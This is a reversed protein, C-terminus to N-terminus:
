VSRRPPPLEIGPPHARTAPPPAPDVVLALREGMGRLAVAPLTVATCASCYDAAIAVAFGGSGDESPSAADSPLAAAAAPATIDAGFAYHDPMLHHLVGVLVLILVCAVAISRRVVPRRVIRHSIISRSIISRSIISRSVVFGGASSLRLISHGVVSRCVTALAAISRDLISRNPCASSASAPAGQM